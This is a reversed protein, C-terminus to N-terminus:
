DRGRWMIGAEWTDEAHLILEGSLNRGYVGPGFLREAEALQEGYLMRHSFPEGPHPRETRLRELFEWRERELNKDM